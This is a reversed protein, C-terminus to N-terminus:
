PKAPRLKRNVPALKTSGTKLWEEAFTDRKRVHEALNKSLSKFAGVLTGAELFMIDSGLDADLEMMALMMVTMLKNDACRLAFDPSGFAPATLIAIADSNTAEAFAVIRQYTIRGNGEELHEYTRVPMGMASAVEATRMRRSKRIARMTDGIPSADQEISTRRRRQVQAFPKDWPLGKM